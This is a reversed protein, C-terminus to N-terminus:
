VGGGGWGGGLFFLISADSAFAFWADQPYTYIYIGHCTGMGDRHDDTASGGQHGRGCQARAARARGGAARQVARCWRARASACGGRQPSWRPAGHGPGGSPGRTDDLFARSIRSFNSFIHHFHLFIPFLHSFGKCVSTKSSPFDDLIWFPLNELLGHDIVLPDSIFYGLWWCFHRIEVMFM